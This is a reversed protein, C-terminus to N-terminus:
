PDAGVAQLPLSISSRSHVTVSMQTTTCLNSGEELVKVRLTGPHIHEKNCQIHFAHEGHSALSGHVPHICLSSHDTVYGPQYSQERHAHGHQGSQLQQGAHSEHQRQSDLTWYNRPFPLVSRPRNKKRCLGSCVPSLKGM